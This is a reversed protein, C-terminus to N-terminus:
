FLNIITVIILFPFLFLSRSLAKQKVHMIIAWRKMHVPHYAGVVDRSLEASDM